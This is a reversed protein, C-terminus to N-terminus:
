LCMFLCDMVFKSNEASLFFFLILSVSPYLWVLLFCYSLQLSKTSGFAGDQMEKM